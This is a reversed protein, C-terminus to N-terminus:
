CSTGPYRSEYWNNSRSLSVQRLKKEAEKGLIIRAMKLSSLKILEKGFTHPKKSKAILYAVQFSAYLLPKETPSFGYMPLTGAQDFRACKATLTGFDNGSEEGVHKNKFHQDLKSPKLNANSFMFSCLICQQRQTGDKETFCTFGYQVYSDNWKWKKSMNIIFRPFSFFVNGYAPTSHQQLEGSNGSSLEPVELKSKINLILM